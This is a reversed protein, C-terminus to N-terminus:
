GWPFTGGSFIPVCNQFGLGLPFNIKRPSGLDFPSRGKFVRGRQIPGRAGETEPRTKGPVMSFNSHFGRSFEPFNGVGLQLVKLASKTPTPGFYWGWDM